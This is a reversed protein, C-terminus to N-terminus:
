VLLGDRGHRFHITDILLIGHIVEVKLLVDLVANCVGHAGHSFELFADVVKVIRPLGLGQKAVHELAKGILADGVTLM